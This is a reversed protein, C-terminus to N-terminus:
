RGIYEEWGYPAMNSRIIKFGAGTDLFLWLGQMGQQLSGVTGDVMYHAVSIVCLHLYFIRKQFYMQLRQGHYLEEGEKKSNDGVM